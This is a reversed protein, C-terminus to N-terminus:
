RITASLTEALEHLVKDRDTGSKHIVAEVQGSLAHREEESLELASVVIVPIQQWEPRRRLEILFDFGNMEPMM